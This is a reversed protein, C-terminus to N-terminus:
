NKLMYQFLVNNRTLHSNKIKEKLIQYDYNIPHEGKKKQHDTSLLIQQLLCEGHARKSDQYGSVITGM